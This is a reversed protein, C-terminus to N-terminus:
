GGAHPGETGLYARIVNPNLRIEDPTGDALVQGFNLVTIRDCIKMVLSMDHEVLVITIGKLRIALLLKALQGTESTNLGSAPEDLFLMKPETAMGCALQLLRQRGLPLTEAAEDCYAELGVFGIAELADKRIKREEEAVRPLRLLSLFLGAHTRAHRAVMVSELVTMGRFPHIKQFTRVLGMGVLAHPSLGNIRREGFRMEGADAPFVGTLVNFFTSKGAGNPGILGTISGPSVTFSVQDLAVVGGFRKTLGQVSLFPASTV